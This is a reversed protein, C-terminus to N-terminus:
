PFLIRPLNRSNLFAIGLHSAHPERFGISCAVAHSIVISFVLLPTYGLAFVLFISFFLTGLDLMVAILPSAYFLTEPDSLSRFTNITPPGTDTETKTNM